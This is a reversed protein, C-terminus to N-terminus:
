KSTWGVEYDSWSDIKGIETSLEREDGAKLDGVPFSLSKVVKGKKDKLTIQVAAETLPDKFGNRIKAKLLKGEVRVNVIELDAAGTFGESTLAVNNNENMKTAISITAFPPIKPAILKIEGVYGGPVVLKDSAGEPSKDGPKDQKKTNSTNSAIYSSPEVQHSAIAKGAQDKFSITQVVDNAPTGGINWLMYRVAAIKKASHHEFDQNL